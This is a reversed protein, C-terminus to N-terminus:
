RKGNKNQIKQILRTEKCKYFFREESKWIENIQLFTKRESERTRAEVKRHFKGRKTSQNSFWNTDKIGNKKRNKATKKTKTDRKERKEGNGNKTDRKKSQM